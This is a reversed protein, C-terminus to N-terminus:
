ASSFAHTIIILVRVKFAWVGGRILLSIMVRMHVVSSFAVLIKIDVQRACIFSSIVGGLISYLYIGSRIKSIVLLPLIRLIGYGGLKLLIGALIM